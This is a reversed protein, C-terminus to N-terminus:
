RRVCDETERRAGSQFFGRSPRRRRGAVERNAAGADGYAVDIRGEGGDTNWSVEAVYADDDFGDKVTTKEKLGDHILFFCARHIIFSSSVLLFSVVCACSLLCARARVRVCRTV